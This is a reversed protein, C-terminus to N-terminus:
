GVAATSSARSPIVRQDVLFAEMEPWSAILPQLEGPAIPKAGALTEHTADRNGVPDIANLAFARVLRAFKTMSAGAIEVERWRATLVDLAKAPQGERCAVLAQPLVSFSTAEGKSRAAAERLSARAADIRGLLAHCTAIQDQIPQHIAGFQRLARSQDVAELLQAGRDPAGRYLEAIGLSYIAVARNCGMGYRAASEFLEAAEEYRGSNLLNTARNSLRQSRWARVLFYVFFGGFLAVVMFGWAVLAWARAARNGAFDEPGSFVEFFAFGLVVLALWLSFLILGRSRPSPRLHSPLPAPSTM